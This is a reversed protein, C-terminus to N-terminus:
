NAEYGAQKLLMLLRQQADTASLEADSILRLADKVEVRPTPDFTDIYRPINLNFDNGQIEDLPVACTHKLLEDPNGYIMGLDHGAETVAKRDEEARRRAVTIRQDREKIKAALKVRQSGLKTIQKEIKLKETKKTDRDAEAQLEAIETDVKALKEFQEKYEAELREVEEMERQNIQERIRGSFEAVLNPVKAPDGYAHYHVLIRM